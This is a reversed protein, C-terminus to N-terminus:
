QVINFEIISVVYEGAAATWGVRDGSKLWITEKMVAIMNTNSNYEKSVNNYGSGNITLKGTSYGNGDKGGSIGMSEIKWVKGQPVTDFIKDGYITNGTYTRVKNFQLNGQAYSAMSFLLIAITLTKKM